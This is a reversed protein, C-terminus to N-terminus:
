ESEGHSMGKPPMWEIKESSVKAIVGRLCEGTVPHRTQLSITDEPHAILIPAFLYSSFHAESKPRYKQAGPISSSLKKAYKLLL